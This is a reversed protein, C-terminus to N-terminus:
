PRVAVQVDKTLTHGSGDDATLKYETDKVPSVQLCNNVAPQVEGVAPEIRVKKAAFVGFCLQTQQGRHIAQPAAYFNIIRFDTGGILDITQRDRRIEEEQRSREGDRASKWRSYFIWGDYAVAVVVAVSIFPLARRLLGLPQGM